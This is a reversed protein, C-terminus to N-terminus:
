RSASRRRAVLRWAALMGGAILAYDSPEPVVTLTGIPLRQTGGTQTRWNSADAIATLWQDRTAGDPHLAQLAALDVGLTTASTPFLGLSIATSGVTLGPPLRSHSQLSTGGTEFAGSDDLTFLPTLNSANFLTSLSSDDSSTFVTIQDGDTTQFAIDTLGAASGASWTWPLTEGTPLTGGTEFNNIITGASITGTATFRAYSNGPETATIAQWASGSWGRDTFYITTGAALDVLPVFSWGDTGAGNYRGVVAVDGAFLAASVKPAALLAVVVAARLQHQFM